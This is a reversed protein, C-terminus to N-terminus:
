GEGTGDTLSHQLSFGVDSTDGIELNENGTLRRLRRLQTNSTITFPRPPMTTIEILDPLVEEVRDMMETLTEPSRHNEYFNEHGVFYAQSLALIQEGDFGYELVIQSMVAHIDQHSEHRWGRQEAIAKVPHVVAGWAKEGAQLRSGNALEERAHIIMHQSIQLRDAVSQAGHAPLDPATSM